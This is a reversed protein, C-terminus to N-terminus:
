RWMGEQETGRDRDKGIKRLRQRQRQRQVKGTRTGTGGKGTETGTGPKGECWLDEAEKQVYVPDGIEIEM